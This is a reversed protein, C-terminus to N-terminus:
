KEDFIYDDNFVGTRMWGEKTEGNIRYTFEYVRQSKDKYFFPGIRVFRQETSLLEGGKQKATKEIKTKDSHTIYTFISFIILIPLTYLVIIKFVSKM